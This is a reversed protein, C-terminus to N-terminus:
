AAAANAREPKLYAGLSGREPTLRATAWEVAARPDYLPRNGFWGAVPPGMNIAPACLKNFTSLGIPYGQDRLHQVIQRRTMLGM